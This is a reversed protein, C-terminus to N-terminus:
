SFTEGSNPDAGGEILRRVTELDGAGAAEVLQDNRPLDTTSSEEIHALLSL